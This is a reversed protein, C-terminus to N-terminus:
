CTFGYVDSFLCSQKRCMIICTTNNSHSGHHGKAWCAGLWLIVVRGLRPWLLLVKPIANCSTILTPSEVQGTWQDLGGTFGGTWDRLGTWCNNIAHYIPIATNPGANYGYMLTKVKLKLRLRDELSMFTSFMYFLPLHM